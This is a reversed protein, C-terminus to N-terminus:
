HANRITFLCVIFVVIHTLLVKKGTVLRCNTIDFTTKCMNYRIRSRKEEALFFFLLVFVFYFGEVAFFRHIRHVYHNQM